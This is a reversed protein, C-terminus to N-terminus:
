SHFEMDATFILRSADFCCAKLASDSLATARRIAAAAVYICFHFELEVM